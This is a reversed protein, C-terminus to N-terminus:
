IYNPKTVFYVFLFPIVVILSQTYIGLFEGFMILFSVSFLLYIYVVLIILNGNILLSLKKLFVLILAHFFPIIILGFYRFNMFTEIAIGTTYSTINSAQINYSGPNIFNKLHPGGGLLKNEFISRPIINILGAFFTKGYLLEWKDSKDVLWVLHEFNGFNLVLAKQLEGLYLSSVMELNLVEFDGTTQIYRLFGAFTFFLFVLVFVFLYKIIKYASLRVKSVAIYSIVLVTFLVFAPFRNGMIVFSIIFPLAIGILFLIISIIAIIRKKTQAWILINTFLLPVVIISMYSFLVVPGMGKRLVIRNILYNELGFSLAYKLLYLTSAITPILFFYVLIYSQKKTLKNPTKIYQKVVKSSRRTIFLHIISYFIFVFLIYGFVMFNAKIYSYESFQLNHWNWEFTIMLLPIFLYISASGILFVFIPEYILRRKRTNSKLLRQLFLLIFVIEIVILFIILSYENM